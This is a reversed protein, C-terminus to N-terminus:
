DVKIIKTKCYLVKHIKKMHELTKIGNGKLEISCRPCVWFYQTKEIKRQKIENENEM